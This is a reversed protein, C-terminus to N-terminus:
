HYTAATIEAIGGGVPSSHAASHEVSNRRTTITRRCNLAAHRTTTTRRYNLAIRHHRRITSSSFASGVNAGATSKPGATSGHAVFGIRNDDTQRDDRGYLLHLWRKPTFWLRQPRDKGDALSATFQRRELREDITTTAAPEHQDVSALLHIKM